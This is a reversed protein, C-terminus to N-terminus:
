KQEIIEIIDKVPLIFSNRYIKDLKIGKIHSM